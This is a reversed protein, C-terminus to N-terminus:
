PSGSGHAGIVDLSNLSGHPAGLNGDNRITTTIGDEFQYHVLLQPSLEDGTQITRIQAASLAACYIQVYDISGNFSRDEDLRTAGILINGLEGLPGKDVGSVAVEGNVFITQVNGTYRWAVDYWVGVEVSGGNTDNGWHGQHFAADRVGNHLVNGTAQGFVMNDGALDNLQIRALATYTSGGLGTAAASLNTDVYIDSGGSLSLVGTQYLTDRFFQIGQDLNATGSVFDGNGGPLTSNAGSGALNPSTVLVNGGDGGSWDNGKELSGSGGLQGNIWISLTEPGNPNSDHTFVVEVDGADIEAQSLPASAVALALGGLGTSRMVLTSPAEYVLSLGITGAGTEFINEAVGETKADFDILARWTADLVDAGDHTGNMTPIAGAANWVETPDGLATVTVDALTVGDPAILTGPGGNGHNVVTRGNSPGSVVMNDFLVTENAGGTRAGFAIRDGDAPAWGGADLGSAIVLDGYTVDLLGGAFSIKVHRFQGDFNFFANNNANAGAAERNTALDAGDVSIDIGIGNDAGEGDNNWTDFEVALGAGFGEEGAAADDPINGLNFSFGDAPDLGGEADFLALDFEVVFGGALGDMPPLKWNANQSDVDDLTLPLAGNTVVIPAQENFLTSGDGLDSAGELADFNQSYVVSPANPQDFEYYVKLADAVANGDFGGSGVIQLGALGVNNSIRRWEFLADGSLGSFVAYTAPAADAEAGATAEIFEVPDNNGFTTFFVEASGNARAAGSRDNGDSTFYAIIDYSAYPINTINVFSYEGDGGETPDATDDLYGDMMRSTANTAAGPAFTTWMTAASWTVEIGSDAGNGDVLGSTSGAIAPGVNNWNGASVVGTVDGAESPTGPAGDAGQQGVFNMSITSVADAGDLIGDNNTDDDNPDSVTVEAGDSLGDGDSDVVLPNSSWAFTEAGDWLGDGDTDRNNPDTGLAIETADNLRDGDLDGMGDRDLNGFLALELSDIIGDGDCDAIPSSCAIAEIQGPTLAACYIRVDDLGGIFDRNGELNTTGILINSDVGTLGNVAGTQVVQGNVLISSNTGDWTYAIHRWESLVVSGGNIDAGWHGQHLNAGRAGNHLVAGTDQGFIMADGDNGDGLADQRVFAMMTYPAGLIGLDSPTLGTDIYTVDAGNASDFWMYGPGDASAGPNLSQWAAANSSILTGNVPGSGDGAATVVMSWASGDSGDAETGDNDTPSLFCDVVDGAALTATVTSTFGVADGATVPASELLVGNIHVGVVVGGGNLNTERGHYTINVPGDVNSVWRRVAHQLTSGTTNTVDDITTNPHGDENAVATWPVDGTGWDWQTGTWVWGNATDFAVFDAPDYDVPGGFELPRYGYTWGNVGQEETGAWDAVSDALVAGAAPGGGGLSEVVLGSIIANKDPFETNTGDLNISLTNGNVPGEYTLFAGAANVGGAAEQEANPSFNDAILEGNLTVDFGRDCCQEHFLLTVKYNGPAVDLDYSVGTPEDNAASWRISNLIAELADNDAGEALDLTGWDLIENQTVRVLGATEDDNTFTADGIVAGGPGRAAVAYVIDGSFDLQSADTIAGSTVSAAGGGGSTQEGISPGNFILAVEDDGLARNWVAVEDILGNFTRGNGGGNANEGIMMPWENGEPIGGPRSENLVGDLYFNTSEGPVNTIAVHHLAGDNVSVPNAVFDGNGAVPGLNDTDGQRHIRWNSGEGKTVIAQWSKDFSDVRFWASVTFGTDDSFDFRGETEVPTSVYQDVGDLDIGGDAFVIPATGVAFGHADGVKDELDSDLPFYAILGDALPSSAPPAINKVVNGEGTEFEYRVKLAGDAVPEPGGLDIAGKVLTLNDIDLSENHGGVRAIISFGSAASATFGETSVDIFSANTRLGETVFSAGKAPDWTLWATASVKENPKFNATDGVAPSFAGVVGTVAVGVGSDQAPDDWKWTDVQYSVHNVDPGYGDEAPAGYNDSGPIDGFNVSFGDAPTNNEDGLNEISFDFHMTWGSSGDFGPPLVFATGGGAGGFETLRLAGNLVGAGTTNSSLSSGDGLDTTGDAFDFSGNAYEDYPVVAGESTVTINEGDAARALNVATLVGAGDALVYGSLGPDTAGAIAIVQTSGVATFTGVVSSNGRVFEGSVNGNLDDGTQTRTDCCGRTDGAGLLQIQYETGATLGDLTISFGAGFYAHSNYVADLDANGTAGGDGTFFTGEANGIGEITAPTFTISSGGILDSAATDPNVDSWVISANPAALEVAAFEAAADADSLSYNWIKVDDLTGTVWHSPVARLIGGITTTDLGGANSLAIDGRPLEVADKAGDIYLAATGGGETYLVHHWAGDLAAGVSHVHNVPNGDSGRIYFDVTGDAGDNATGINFLPTNDTTSGESFLRLDNQGTGTTQTWFGISFSEYNDNVPLASGDGGVHTLMTERAADFAVAGGVAGSVIDDATLNVATMNNGGVIDPTVGDTIEDLPWHAILGKASELQVAGATLVLNDIEVTENHGGVRALISFGHGAEAVFDPTAVDIFDANTRLGETVFSAGREPDWVLVASASVKENPKFNANDDAAKNLAVEVGAVEIGVGADQGAADNWLWTDVQYSVHAVGEGYGEEAPNGYNDPGPIAGYNVSFGDAPTNSDDGLNEISFDFTMTWGATGDFGPPLVFATGGGVGGFETLRLAGGYVGVGSTNSSLTSGDGLDTTGDAFDFSGNAIFGPVVPAVPATLTFLATEGPSKGFVISHAGLGGWGKQGPEAEDGDNVTFGLGFQVGPVLADLALAAKPLKIEYTTTKADADRVVIADSGGPGAEDNVVLAGLAGDVGGLAFNYLGVQTDRAGNAIMLQVADGNWASVAANEHYDDTVVVGVYVNDDDYTVFVTSSQDAPGDWTGGGFPEFTVLDDTGDAGPRFRPNVIAKASAWESLNGDLVIPNNSKSADQFEEAPDIGNGQPLEPGPAAAIIMGSVGGSGDELHRYFVADGEAVSVAVTGSKGAAFDGTNPDSPEEGVWIKGFQGSDTTRGEFVTVDYNGAALGDFRMVASTGAADTIKFLYDDLVAQPAFGDAGPGAPNNPNFGDELATVSVGGGLSFAVDQALNSVPIWGPATGNANPGASGFDLLLTGSAGGLTVQATETTTKGNYVISHTGLGGWGKQGPELEDGDNITMGIGLQVGAALADIGISSKPLKIEYTTSTGVRTIVAESGGPGAEDHIQVIGTAGEIGELAYNYLALNTDRAGNAVHLQVADGNWAGGPGTAAHEHYDDTVIIGVYVNDDDWTLWTTNSHDDPGDWTGGGFPEFFALDTTGDPGPRSQANVIPTATWESLDGDLVIPNGARAATQFEVDPGISTGAPQSYLRVNDFHSRDAAGEDGLFIVINGAPAEAGTTYSVTNDTFSLAPNAGSDVTVSAAALLPDNELQANANADALRNDPGPAEDLNTLGIITLAGAPEGRNGVGVTLTYTTNPAWPTGTNQFVYYNAQMGLHQGGESSFDPIFEIFTNGNNPGDQGIWNSGSIPNNPDPLDNSWGGPELAPREFSANNVEIPAALASTGAGVLTLLGIAWSTSRRKLTKLSLRM